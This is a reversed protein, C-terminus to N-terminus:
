IVRPGSGLYVCHPCKAGPHQETWALLQSVMYAHVGPALKGPRGEDSLRRKEGRGSVHSHPGFAPAAAGAELLDFVPSIGAVSTAPTTGESAREAMSGPLLVKRGSNARSPEADSDDGEDGDGEGEGDGLKALTRYQM